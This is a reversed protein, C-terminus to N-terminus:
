RLEISGFSQSPATFAGGQIEVWRMGVGSEEGPDAEYTTTWEAAAGQIHVPAPSGAINAWFLSNGIRAALIRDPDSTEVPFISEGAETGRTLMSWASFVPRPKWGHDKYKWLGYNMYSGGPYYTEHVCWLCYGSAGLNLGRFALELTWLAYDYSDMTPNVLHTSRGDQFGFETIWFPKQSRRSSLQELREQILPELFMRNQTQFYAHSAWIDTLSEYTADNVCAKFWEFAAAEDSGVFKVDLGRRDFEERVLRHIRVFLQFPYRVRFWGDPENTLTWYRAVTYGRTRILHEFLEGLAHAFAEPDDYANKLGWETGTVIVPTGLDQYMDLTRYHSQMNPSEFDLRKWDGDPNWDTHWFFMRVLDPDMWRIRDERLRADSEDVGQDRNIPAYFWGDDEFGFGALPHPLPTPCVQLQVPGSSDAIARAPERHLYADDFLVEGRGNLVLVMRARRAGEPAASRVRINTWSRDLITHSGQTFLIRESKEDLYDMSIYGGNGGSLNMGFVRAGAELLEGPQIDIEQYFTVFSKEATSAVIIKACPDGQSEASEIRGVSHWLNWGDLGQDFGPNQLLNPGSGSLLAALLISKFM